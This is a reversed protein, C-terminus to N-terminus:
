TLCIGQYSRIFYGNKRRADFFYAVSFVRFFPAVDIILLFRWVIVAFVRNFARNQGLSAQCSTRASLEGIGHM